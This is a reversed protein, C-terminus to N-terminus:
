ESLVKLPEKTIFRLVLNVVSLATAAYGAYEPNAQIMDSGAVAAVIGAVATIVNIWMTRSKFISKGMNTESPQPKAPNSKPATSNGNGPTLNNYPSSM